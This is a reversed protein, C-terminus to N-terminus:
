QEVPEGRGTADRSATETVDVAVTDRARRRRLRRAVVSGALAIGLVAVFRRKRGAGPRKEDEAATEVDIGTSDGEVETEDAGGFLSGFETGDVHVEFLTLNEFAM